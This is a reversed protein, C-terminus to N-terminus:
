MRQILCAAQTCTMTSPVRLDAAFFDILVRTRRTNADQGARAARSNPPCSNDRRPRARCSGRPEDEKKTVIM